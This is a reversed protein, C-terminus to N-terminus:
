GRKQLRMGVLPHRCEAISPVAIVSSIEQTSCGDNGAVNGTLLDGQMPGDQSQIAVIPIISNHYIQVLKSQGIDHTSFVVAEEILWLDLGTKSLGGILHDGM